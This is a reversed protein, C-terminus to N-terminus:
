KGHIKGVENTRGCALQLTLSDACSSFWLGWSAAGEVGEWLRPVTQRWWAPSDGQLGRRRGQLECVSPQCPGQSPCLMPARLHGFVAPPAPPCGGGVLPGAESLGPRERAGGPLGCARPLADVDLAGKRRWGPGSPCVTRPGSVYGAATLSGCSLQVNSHQRQLQRCGPHLHSCHTRGSGEM